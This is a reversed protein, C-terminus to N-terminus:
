SPYKRSFFIFSSYVAVAAYQPIRQIYDYKGASYDSLSTSILMLVIIVLICLSLKFNEASKKAHYEGRLQKESIRLTIKSEM